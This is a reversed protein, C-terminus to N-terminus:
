NCDPRLRICQSTHYAAGLAIVYNVDCYDVVIRLDSGPKLPHDLMRRIQRYPTTGRQSSASATM